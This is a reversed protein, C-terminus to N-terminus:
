LVFNTMCKKSKKYNKKINQRNSQKQYNNYNKENKEEKRRLTGSRVVTEVKRLSWAKKLLCARGGTLNVISSTCPSGCASSEPDHKDVNGTPRSMVSDIIASQSEDVTYFELVCRSADVSDAASALVSM